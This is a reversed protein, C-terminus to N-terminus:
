LLVCRLFGSLWDDLLDPLLCAEVYQRLRCWCTLGQRQADRFLDSRYRSHFFLIQLALLIYSTPRRLVPTLDCPRLVSCATGFRSMKRRCSIQLFVDM